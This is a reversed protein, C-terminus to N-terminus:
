EFLREWYRDLAERKFWELTWTQDSLVSKAIEEPVVYAFAELTGGNTSVEVVEREYFSDEYADLRRMATESVNLVVKGLVPGTGEVIGPFDGGTVRFIDFGKLEASATELDELGTVASLIKPVLLTGYVFLNM